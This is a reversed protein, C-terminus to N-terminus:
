KGHGEAAKESTFWRFRLWLPLRVLFRGARTVDSFFWTLFAVNRRLPIRGALIQLARPARPGAINNRAAGGGAALTGLREETLAILGTGSM